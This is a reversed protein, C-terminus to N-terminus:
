AFYGWVKRCASKGTGRWLGSTFEREREALQVAAERVKVNTLGHQLCSSFAVVWESVRAPGEEENLGRSRVGGGFMSALDDSSVAGGDALSRGSASGVPPSTLQWGDGLGNSSSVFKSEDGAACSARSKLSPLAVKAAAAAVATATAPPPADGGSAPLRDRWKIPYPRRGFRRSAPPLSLHERLEPSAAVCLM